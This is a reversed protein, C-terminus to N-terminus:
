FLTLKEFNKLQVSTKEYKRLCNQVKGSDGFKAKFFMLSDDAFFMHSITLCANTMRIGQLERRRGLENIVFSLGRSFIVFLHSSFPDGQHIGRQQQLSGFIKQNLVFNYQMSAIM